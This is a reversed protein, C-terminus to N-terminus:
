QDFPYRSVDSEHAHSSSTEPTEPRYYQPDNYYNLFEEETIRGERLARILHRYEYGPKHGKYWNGRLPEGPQWVIEKGNPVPDYVKGDIGKAQDYIQRNLEAENRFGPRGEEYARGAAPPKYFPNAENPVPTGPKFGWPNNRTYYPKGGPSMAMGKPLAKFNLGYLLFMADSWRLGSIGNEAIRSGFEYEPLAGKAASNALAGPDEEGLAYDHWASEGGHTIRGGLLVAGIVGGKIGFSAGINSIVSMATPRALIMSARSMNIGTGLTGGSQTVRSLVSLGRGLGLRGALTSTTATASGTVAGVGLLQGGTGILAGTLFCETLKAGYSVAAYGFADLWNKINPAYQIIGGAKCEMQYVGTITKTDTSIFDTKGGMWKRAPGMKHGCLLGGIVAGIVGGALGAVAGLLVLGMGGTAVTLVGVAVAVVVALAAIIAMLLMYKKCGFDIWSVTSTDEVTIYVKGDNTKNRKRTGQFPTPVAGESCIWFDKETIIEAGM